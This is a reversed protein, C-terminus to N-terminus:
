EEEAEPKPEAPAEEQTLSTETQREEIRASKGKRERLYFLKARRVRGERVVSVRSISPSSLPFIREVGVGGSVKRVTFTSRTGSGRRSVVVGEFLQTREKDGEVVKVHVRVTDGPGFDPVKKKLHKSEVFNMPDM